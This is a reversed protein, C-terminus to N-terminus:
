ASQGVAGADAPARRAVQGSISWPQDLARTWRNSPLDPFLLALSTCFKSLRTPRHGLSWLLRDARSPPGASKSEVIVMGPLAIVRGDPAEAEMGTDITVRAETGDLLLTIRTYRTTLAPELAAGQEGILPCARIIEQAEVDLRGRGDVPHDHQQKITQGHTGRTKIELACRGTDLYARTRVKYRRSRRRAAGLYSSREPTDFYVSEYRFHRRGEIELVRCRGRLAMVLRAATDAPVIYKRDRRTLLPAVADLEALGIAPLREVLEGLGPTGTM